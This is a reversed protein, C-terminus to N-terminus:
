CFNSFSAVRGFCFRVCCGGASDFAISYSLWLSTRSDRLVFGCVVLSLRSWFCCFRVNIVDFCFLIRYNKSAPNLHTNGNQIQKRKSDVPSFFSKKLRALEVRRRQKRKRELHSRFTLLQWVTPKCASFFNGNPSQKIYLKCHSFYCWFLTCVWVWVCVFVYSLYHSSFLIFHFVLKQRNIHVFYNLKYKPILLVNHTCRLVVALKKCILFSTIVSVCWSFPTFQFMLWLPSAFCSFIITIIWFM